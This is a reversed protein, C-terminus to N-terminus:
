VKEKKSVNTWLDNYHYAVVGTDIKFDINLKNKVDYNFYSDPHGQLEDGYDIRYKINEIIYREILCCGIGNQFGTRLSGDFDIMALDITKMLVLRKKGFDQHEFDLIKSDHVKGIFYPVGIIKVNYGLLHKITNKPVFVDTELSFFHTYNKKSNLFIEQLKKNCSLMIERLNIGERLYLIDANKINYKSLNKKIKKVHKKDKSNDIIVIDLDPFDIKSLQLCFEDLCYDKHASTMTGLMVKNKNKEKM